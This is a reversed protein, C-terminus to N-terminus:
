LYKIIKIFSISIQICSSIMDLFSLEPQVSFLVNGMSISFFVGEWFTAHKKRDSTFLIEERPNGLITLVANHMERLHPARDAM